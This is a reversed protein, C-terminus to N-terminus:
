FTVSLLLGQSMPDAYPVFAVNNGGVVVHKKGKSVIGDIVNWVYIAAAGAIFGNRINRMNDTKSIYDQRENANHTKNIKSEYSSRLGEFAVIGGIAAVEGVIFLTGRTTQGKHIQAMGPILVRPSFAYKETVRVPECTLQPNKAIQVLLYVCYEGSALREKYRDIEKKNVTIEDAKVFQSGKDSDIIVRQGTASSKWENASQQAKKWAEEELYDTASFVKITSNPLDYTVGKVWDPRENISQQGMMVSPFLLGYLIVIFNRM